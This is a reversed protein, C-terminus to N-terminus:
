IKVDEMYTVTLATEYMYTSKMKNTAQTASYSLDNIESWLGSGVSIEERKM